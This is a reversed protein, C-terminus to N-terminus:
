DKIDLRIIEYPSSFGFSHKFLRAQAPKCWAQLKSVGGKKLLEKFQNMDRENSFLNYGGYSIINAVRFNPFQSIEFALAGIIHDPTDTSVVVHAIGGTILLRLQNIDLEGESCLLGKELLPKVQDWFKDLHEKSLYSITKTEL